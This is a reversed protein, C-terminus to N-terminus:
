AKKVNIGGHLEDQWKRLEDWKGQDAMKAQEPWSSPDHMQFRKGANALINQLNSVPTMALERWTYIGQQNLIEEIKPGIGEVVRLDDKTSYLPEPDPVVAKTAKKPAPAPVPVAQMPATRQIPQKEIVQPARATPRPTVNVVEPVYEVYGYNKRMKKRRPVKYYHFRKYWYKYGRLGYIVWGAAMAILLIVGLSLPTLTIITQTLWEM